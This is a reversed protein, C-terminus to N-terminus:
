ERCSQFVLSSLSLSLPLHLCFYLCASPCLSLFLFFLLSLSLSVSPPFTEAPIRARTLTAVRSTAVLFGECSVLCM